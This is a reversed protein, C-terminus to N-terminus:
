MPQLLQRRRQHGHDAPGPGPRRSGRLLRRQRDAPGASVTPARSSCCPTVRCGFQNTIQASCLTSPPSSPPSPRARASCTFTPAWRAWTAEPPRPPQGRVRLERQLGPQHRRRLNQLRVARAQTGATSSQGTVDLCQGSNKNQFQWSGDSLQIPLWLSNASGDQTWQIVPAMSATSAGSVNIDLGSNQNQLQGYGGSVPNFQFEQNAQGLEQLGMSRHRCQQRHQGRVRGRVPRRQGGEAASLGVPFRVGGCGADRGALFLAAAAAVLAFLLSFIVARRQRRGTLLDTM